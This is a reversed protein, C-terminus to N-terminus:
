LKLEELPPAPTSTLRDEAIACYEASLDVGIYRRDHM